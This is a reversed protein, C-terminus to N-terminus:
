ETFISRVSGNKVGKELGLLIKVRTAYELVSERRAGQDRRGCGCYMKTM